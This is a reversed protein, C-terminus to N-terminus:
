GYILDPNQIHYANEDDGQITVNLEGKDNLQAQVSELPYFSLSLQGELVKVGDIISTKAAVISKFLVPTKTDDSNTDAFCNIIFTNDQKNVESITKISVNTNM